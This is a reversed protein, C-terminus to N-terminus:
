SFSRSSVGSDARSFYGSSCHNGRNAISVREITGTELDDVYIDAVGNTDSPLLNSTSRFVLETGDASVPGAFELVSASLPRRLNIGTIRDQVYM